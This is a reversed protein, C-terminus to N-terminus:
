LVWFKRIYRWTGVFAKANKYFSDYMAVFKKADEPKVPTKSYLHSNYLETMGEFTTGDSATFQELIGSQQEAFELITQSDAKGVGLKKLRSLFFDYVFAAQNSADLGNLRRRRRARLVYKIVFPAALLLIILATVWYVTYDKQKYSITQAGITEDSEKQDEEELDNEDEKKTTKTKKM